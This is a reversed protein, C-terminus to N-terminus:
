FCRVLVALKIRTYFKKNSFSTPGSHMGVLFEVSEALVFEFCILSVSKGPFSISEKERTETYIGIRMSSQGM